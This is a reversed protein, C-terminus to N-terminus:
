SEEDNRWAEIVRKRTEEMKGSNDIVVDARAAKEEQSMQSGIRQLAHERTCSDRELIRQALAEEPATVVWVSDMWADFGSEFLLPAVIVVRADGPARSVEEAVRRFILPHLISNLKERQADDAFVVDALKKRDIEGDEGLVGEGWEKVISNWGQSRAAVVERAVRDTDIVVAGLEGLVSAVLSKGSAISGTLGIKKM